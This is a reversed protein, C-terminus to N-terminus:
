IMMIHKCQSYANLTLPIKLNNPLMETFVGFVKLLSVGVGLINTNGTDLMGELSPSEMLRGEMSHSGPCPICQSVGVFYLVLYWVLNLFIGLM